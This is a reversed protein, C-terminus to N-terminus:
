SVSKLTAIITPYKRNINSYLYNYVIILDKTLEAKNVDKLPVFKHEFIVGNSITQPHEDLLSTMIESIYTLDGDVWSKYKMPKKLNRSRFYGQKHRETNNNMNKALYKAMNDYYFTTDVKQIDTFGNTWKDILISQTLNVANCILHFHYNGNKQTDCVAIYMFNDYLRNMSQIFHKFKRVCTERNTADILGGDFTLTVFVTNTNDFNLLTIENVTRNRRSKSNNLSLNAKQEAPLDSYTSKKEKFRKCSVNNKIFCNLVKVQVSSDLDTVVFKLDTYSICDFLDFRKMYTKLQQQTM